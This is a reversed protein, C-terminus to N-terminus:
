PKKKSDRGKVMPMMVLMLGGCLMLEVTLTIMQKIEDPIIWWLVTGIVPIAVTAGILGVIIPMWALGKVWALYISPESGEAYVIRQYGPWCPVGAAILGQELSKLAGASPFGRFDVRMLMLAGESASEELPAFLDASIGELSALLAPRCGPPLTFPM